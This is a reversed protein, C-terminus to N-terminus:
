ALVQRVEATADIELATVDVFRRAERLEERAHIADEM